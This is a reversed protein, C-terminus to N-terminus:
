SIVRRFSTRRGLERLKKEGREKFAKAASSVNSGQGQETSFDGLKVGKADVGTLQMNDLLNASTLAILAPQYKEAIDVSGITQGTYREAYLREEDAMAILQTGSLSTPINEIRSQVIGAVSGVSFLVM